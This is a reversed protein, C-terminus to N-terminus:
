VKEAFQNFADALAVMESDGKSDLRKTLDGDGAAIDEMALIVNDLPQIISRMLLVVGVISLLVVFILVFAIVDRSISIDARFAESLTKIDQNASVVEASLGKVNTLETSVQDISNLQTNINNTFENMKGVTSTLGILAERRMSEEIDGVMDAVDELTDKASGNPLDEAVEAVEALLDKLDASIQKLKRETIKVTMNTKNIDDVVALMGGSVQSLSQDAATLGTQTSQSNNVGTASKDVVEVFGATLNGFSYIAIFFVIALLLSIIIGGGLLKHKISM